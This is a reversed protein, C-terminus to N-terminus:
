LHARRYQEHFGLTQGATALVLAPDRLPALPIWFVGDPYRDSAHRAAEIALRTKGTGGPGTLTVLRLTTREAAARGVDALEREASSVADRRVPLNTRRVFHVSRPSHPRAGM